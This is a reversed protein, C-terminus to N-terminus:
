LHSEKKSLEGHFYEYAYTEIDGESLNNGEEDIIKYSQQVGGISTEGDLGLLITYFADTLITDLLEKFIPTQQEDLDLRKFLNSALTQKEVGTDLYYNNLHQKELYFLKVFEKVIEEKDM